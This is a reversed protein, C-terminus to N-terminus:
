EAPALGSGPCRGLVGRRKLHGAVSGGRGWLAVSRGCVACEGRFGDLVLAEAYDGERAKRIADVTLIAMWDLDHRKLWRGAQRIQMDGQM